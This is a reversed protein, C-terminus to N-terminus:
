LWGKEALLEIHSPALPLQLATAYRNLMVTAGCCLLLDVIEHEEFHAALEERADAATAEARLREADLEKRSCHLKRLRRRRRERWQRRM